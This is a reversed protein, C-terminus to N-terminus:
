YNIIDWLSLSILCFDRIFANLLLTGGCVFSFCTFLYIWSYNMELLLLSECSTRSQGRENSVRNMSYQLSCGFHPLILLLSVVSHLSQSLVVSILDSTPIEQTKDLSCSGRALAYPISWHVPNMHVSKRPVLM